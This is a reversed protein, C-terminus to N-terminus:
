NITVTESPPQNGNCAGSRSAVTYTGTPGVDAKIGFIAYCDIAITMRFNCTPEGTYQEVVGIGRLLPTFVVEYTVPHVGPASTM